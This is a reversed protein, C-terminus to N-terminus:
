PADGGAARVNKRHATQRLYDHHLEALNTGHTFYRVVCERLWDDFLDMRAKDHVFETPVAFPKSPRWPSLKASVIGHREGITGGRQCDICGGTTVYRESLHERVCPKGTYFRKLGRGAADRRSIIEPM